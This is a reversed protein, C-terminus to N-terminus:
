ESVDSIGSVRVCARCRARLSATAGERDWERGRGRGGEKEGEERTRERGGDRWGKWGCESVYKTSYCPASGSRARSRAEQPPVASIAAHRPAWTATVPASSSAPASGFRARCSPVTPQHCPPVTPQYPATAHYPNRNRNRNTTHMRASSGFRRYSEFRARGSPVIRIAWRQM